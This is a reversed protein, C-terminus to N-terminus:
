FKDYIKELLRPVATIFHPKVDKINEPISELSEAFYVELSNHIYLYVFTREFIHCVPLFSLTCSNDINLPIKISASLVNSM